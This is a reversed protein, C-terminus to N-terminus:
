FLMSGIYQLRIFYLNTCFSFILKYNFECSSTYRLWLPTSLYYHEATPSFCFAGEPPTAGCAGHDQLQLCRETIPLVSPCDVLVLYYFSVALQLPSLTRMHAVFRHALYYTPTRLSLGRMCLSYVSKTTLIQSICTHITAVPNHSSYPCFSVCM